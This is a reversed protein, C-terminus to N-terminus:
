LKKNLTYEFEKTDWKVEFKTKCQECEIIEPNGLIIKEKNWWVNGYDRNIQGCNPCKYEFRGLECDPDDCHNIFEGIYTKEKFLKKLLYKLCNKM